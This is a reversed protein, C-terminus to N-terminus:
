PSALGIYEARIFTHRSERRAAPIFDMEPAVISKREERAVTVREAQTFCEEQECQMGRMPCACHVGEYLNM